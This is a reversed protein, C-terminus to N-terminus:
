FLREARVCVNQQGMSCSKFRGFGDFKPSSDIGHRRCCTRRGPIQFIVAGGLRLNSCLVLFPVALSQRREGDSTDTGWQPNGGEGRGITAM